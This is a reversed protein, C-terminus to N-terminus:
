LLDFVSTRIQVMKIAITIIILQLFVRLESNNSDRM